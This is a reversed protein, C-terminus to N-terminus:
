NQLKTPIFIKPKHWSYKASDYFQKMCARYRCKNHIDGLEGCVTCKIGFIKDLKPTFIDM